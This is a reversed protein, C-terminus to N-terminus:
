KKALRVQLDKLDRQAQTDKKCDGFVCAKHFGMREDDETTNVESWKPAMGLAISDTAGSKTREFKGKDVPNNLNDQIKINLDNKSTADSDLEPIDIKLDIISKDNCQVVNPLITILLAICLSIVSNLNLFRNLIIILYQM